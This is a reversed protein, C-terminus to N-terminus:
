LMFNSLKGDRRREGNGYSEVVSEDGDRSKSELKDHSHIRNGNRNMEIDDRETENFKTFLPNRGETATDMENIVLTMETVSNKNNNSNNPDMNRRMGSSDNTGFSKNKEMCKYLLVKCIDQVMWWVLCYIWVFIALTKPNKYGLGLASIGDPQSDPWVLAILTSLSLAFVSAALLIPSPMSSWFFGNHTRASFLTLFDSVSVKLYIVTTIQGYTLSGVGFGKLLSNANWSNLCLYLLILSSLLAVIALVSSMLFVKKLNWVGPYQSPTVYDYGVSILTGSFSYRYVITSSCEILIQLFPFNLM